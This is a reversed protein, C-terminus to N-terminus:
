VLWCENNMASGSIDLLASYRGFTCMNFNEARDCFNRMCTLSPIVQLLYHYLVYICQGAIVSTRVSLWM